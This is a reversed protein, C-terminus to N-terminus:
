GECTACGACRAYHDAPLQAKAEARALEGDHWACLPIRRGGADVVLVAAVDGCASCAGALEGRGVTQAAALLLDGRRREAFAGVEVEVGLLEGTNDDFYEVLEVDAEAAGPAPTRDHEVRLQAVRASVRYIRGASSATTYAVQVTSGRGAKVVVGRRLRGTGQTWVVDGVEVAAPAPLEALDTLPRAGILGTLQPRLADDDLWGAILKALSMSDHAKPARFTRADQDICWVHGSADRLAALVYGGAAHWAAVEAPRDAIKARMAPTFEAPLETTAPLPQCMPASYARSLDFCDATLEHGAPAGTAQCVTPTFPRGASDRYTEGAILVRNPNM